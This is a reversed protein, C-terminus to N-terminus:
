GSSPTKQVPLVDPDNSAASWALRYRTARRTTAPRAVALVGDLVLAQFIWAANTHSTGILEGAARSTLFFPDNGAQAQLRVCIHVLHRAQDGYGLTELGVPLPALPDIGAVITKLVGTGLPIKVKQWGRAFESWTVAFEKTQIAPLARRHWEQVIPRLEALSADPMQAKLHRALKFLLLNREGAETPLTDPPINVSSPCFLASSHRSDDETKRQGEETLELIIKRPAVPDARRAGRETVRETLSAFGSLDVLPGAKIVDGTVTFYRDRAYFEVKIDGIMGKCRAPPGARGLAHLGTGSPSLEVYEAGSEDIIALAAPDIEGEVVCDDIDIGVIGDGNFVFGVGNYGGEEYATRAQEFSSWTDPNTVSAKSDVATASYPVKADKWVVWRPLQRLELPIMDFDPTPM